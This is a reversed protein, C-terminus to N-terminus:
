SACGHGCLTTTITLTIRLPERLVRTSAGHPHGQFELAYVLISPALEYRAYRAYRAYCRSLAPTSRVGPPLRKATKAAAPM